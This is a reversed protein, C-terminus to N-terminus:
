LRHFTKVTAGNAARWIMTMPARLRMGGRPLTSVFVNGVVKATATFAPAHHTNFGGVRGAPYQLTVTAVGDPVLMTISTHTFVSESAYAEGQEIESADADGGGSGGGGGDQRWVTIGEGTLKLVGCGSFVSPILYYSRDGIVRARRVYRVFIEEGRVRAAGGSTFFSFLSGSLADAKTAPRRLVGLISLLSRSPTGEDVGRGNQHSVCAALTEPANVARQPHAHAPGQAAPSRGDGGGHSALVIAAIGAVALASVIGAIARHRRERARAEEIVGADIDELPPLEATATTSEERAM